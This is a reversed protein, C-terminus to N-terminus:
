HCLKTYLKIPQSTVAVPGPESNMQYKRSPFKTNNLLIGMDVMVNGSHRYQKIIYFSLPFNVYTTHKIFVRSLAM